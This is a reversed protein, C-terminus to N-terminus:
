HSQLESTHEESRKESTQRSKLRNQSAAELQMFQDVISATDLGSGLGSISASSAM